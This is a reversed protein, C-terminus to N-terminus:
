NQSLTSSIRTCTTNSTSDFPFLVTVITKALEHFKLKKFALTLDELFGDGNFTIFYRLNIEAFICIPLNKFAKDRCTKAMVTAFFVFTFNILFTEVNRLFRM